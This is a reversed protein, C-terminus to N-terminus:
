PEDSLREIRVPTFGADIVIQRIADLDVLEGRTEVRVKKHKLSVLVETVDPHKKLSRELGDVCFACTMGHIDIAYQAASSPMSWLTMCLGIAFLLRKM